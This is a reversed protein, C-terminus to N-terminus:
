NSNKYYGLRELKSVQSVAISHRMLKIVEESNWNSAIDRATVGISRAKMKNIWGIVAETEADYIEETTLLVDKDETPKM